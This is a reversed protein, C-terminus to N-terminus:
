KLALVVHKLASLRANPKALNILLSAKPALFVPSKGLWHSISALTAISVCLTTFSHQQRLKDHVLPVYLRTPIAHTKAQSTRSSAKNAASAALRALKTKISVLMARSACLTASGQVLVLKVHVLPACLISSVSRRDLSVPFNVQLATRAINSDLSIRSRGLPAFPVHTAMTVHVLHVNRKKLETSTASVRAKRLSSRTAFAASVSANIRLQPSSASRVFLAPLTKSDAPQPVSKLVLSACRLTRFVPHRGLKQSFLVRPACSALSKISLTKFLAQGALLM